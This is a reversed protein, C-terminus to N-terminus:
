RRRATTVARDTHEPPTGYGLAVNWVRYRGLLRRVEDFQLVGEQLQGGPLTGSDPKAVEFAQGVVLDGAGKGATLACNRESM